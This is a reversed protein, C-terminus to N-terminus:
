DDNLWLAAGRHQAGAQLVDLPLRRQMPTRCIQIRLIKWPVLVKLQEGFPTNIPIVRDPRVKDKLQAEAEKLLPLWSDEHRNVDLFYATAVYNEGPPEWPPLAAEAADVDACWLWEEQPDPRSYREDGVERLSNRLGRLVAKALMPTYVQSMVPNGGLVQGHVHASPGPCQHCLQDLLLPLDSLWGTPKKLLDGNKGRLDYCCMHGVRLEARPIEYLRLIEPHQWFPTHAPNELLFHGGYDAHIAAITNVMEKIWLLQGARLKDLAAQDYNLHQVNSWLTCPFEFVALFPKHKLLLTRLADFDRSTQLTLGYKVDVPQLARLGQDLAARTIEANGGYIEVIDTGYKRFARAQLVRHEYVRHELHWAESLSKENGRVRKCLGTKAKFAGQDEGGLPEDASSLLAPLSPAPLERLDALVGRRGGGSRGPRPPVSRGSQVAFGGLRGASRPRGTIGLRGLETGGMRDGSGTTGDLGHRRSLCRNRHEHPRERLWAVAETASHVPEFSSGADHKQSPSGDESCSESGFQNLIEPSRTSSSSACIGALINLLAALLRPVKANAYQRGRAKQRPNGGDRARSSKSADQSVAFSESYGACIYGDASSCVSDRVSRLNSDTNGRGWLIEDGIRPQMNGSHALLKPEATVGSSGYSGNNVFTDYRLESGPPHADSSGQARPSANDGLVHYGDAQRLLRLEPPVEAHQALSSAMHASAHPVPRAPLEITPLSRSSELSDPHIVDPLNEPVHEPPWQFADRGWEDLRVALHGCPSLWLQTSCQLARFYMTGSYVDPVAGLSEFAKRSMLAPAKAKVSSICMALPKGAISAPYVFRGQSQLAESPGFSFKCMDPYVLRCLPDVELCKQAHWSEGAVQRQCGTDAIIYASSSGQYYQLLISPSKTIRPEFESLSPAQFSPQVSKEDADPTDQAPYDEFSVMWVSAAGESDLVLGDIAASTLQANQVTYSPCDKLWHDASGCGLCLSGQLRQQHVANDNKSKGKASVPQGKKGSAKGGSVSPRPTLKGRGKGKGKPRGKGKGKKGKGKGDTHYYGRAQVLSALRKSTVTLAQLVEHIDDIEADHGEGPVDEAWDDDEGDQNEDEYGTQGEDGAVQEEDEADPPVDEYEPYQDVEEDPPNDVEEWTTNWHRWRKSPGARTTSTTTSATSSSSSAGRGRGRRDTRLRPLGTITMGAPYQISIANLIARMEYRNGAALLLSSVSREDLRLGDLLKIVRAQEPYEPVQNDKLKRELLRFRRVFAHVSEGQLRGVSEFERITGGQRFLEKAGFTKELDELLLQIGNEVNYRSDDIEEMEIEAEGKLNELARLAQENGPLYEKTIEVWRLLHRKYHRYCYPDAEIDGDFSPPQPVQGSRWRKQESSSKSGAGGRSGRKRRSAPTSLTEVSSLAGSGAGAAGDGFDARPAGAGIDPFHGQAQAGSLLDDDFFM